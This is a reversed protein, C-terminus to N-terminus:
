SRAEVSILSSIGADELIARLKKEVAEAPVTDKTCVHFKATVTWALEGTATEPKPPEVPASEEAVPAPEPAPAPKEAEAKQRAKEEAVKQREIEAAIIRELERDYTEDDAHIFGRIHDITLPAALGAKYSENELRMLRGDYRDQDAREAAARADVEAGAKGTLKGKGTINSLIVLDDLEAKYFEERVKNKKRGEELRRTLLRTIEARTENEFVAVRDLLKQRGDKCIGVLEKMQDEFTKIPASAEKAVEKRRTDIVGANKNLETALKKAEAVNDQTVVIDYKEVEAILAARVTEFNTEIAAPTTTIAIQSSM